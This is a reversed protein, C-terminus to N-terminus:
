HGHGPFPIDRSSSLAQPVLSADPKGTSSLLPHTMRFSDWRSMERLLDIAANIFEKIPFAAPPWKSSMEVIWSAWNRPVFLNHLPDPRRRGCDFVVQM